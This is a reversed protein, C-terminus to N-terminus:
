IAQLLPPRQKGPRAAQTATDAYRYGAKPIVEIWRRLPVNVAAASAVLKGLLVRMNSTDGRFRRGLIESFLTDYSIVKGGSQALLEALEVERPTLSVSREGHLLLREPARLMAGAFPLDEANPRNVKARPPPQTGLFKKCYATLVEARVPDRIVCDAGLSIQRAEVATSIGARLLVIIKTRPVMEANVLAAIVNDSYGDALKHQVIVVSPPTRRLVRELGRVSDCEMSPWGHAECLAQLAAREQAASGVILIM